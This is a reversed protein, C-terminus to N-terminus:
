EPDFLWAGLMPRMLDEDSSTRWSDLMGISLLDCGVRLPAGDDLIADAIRRAAEATPTVFDAVKGKRGEYMRLAMTAYEDEDVAHAPRDSGELM